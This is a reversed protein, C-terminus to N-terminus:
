NIHSHRVLEKSDVYHNPLARKKIATEDQATVATDEKINPNIIVTESQSLEFKEQAAVNAEQVVMAKPSSPM